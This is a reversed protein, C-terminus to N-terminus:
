HHPDTLISDICGVSVWFGILVSKGPERLLGLLLV